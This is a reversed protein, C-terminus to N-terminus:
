VIFQSCGSMQTSIFDKLYLLSYGAVPQLCTHQILKKPQLWHYTYVSSCHWLTLFHIVTLEPLTRSVLGPHLVLNYRPSRFLPGSNLPFVWFVEYRFGRYLNTCPWLAAALYTLPPRLAISYDWLIAHCTVNLEKRPPEQFRIHREKECQVDQALTGTVTPIEM